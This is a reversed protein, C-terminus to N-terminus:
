FRGAMVGWSGTTSPGGLYAAPIPEEAAVDM